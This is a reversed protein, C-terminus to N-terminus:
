KQMKEQLLIQLDKFLHKFNQRNPEPIIQDCQENAVTLVAQLTAGANKEIILNQPNMTEWLKNGIEMLLAPTIDKAQPFITKLVKDETTLTANQFQSKILLSIFIGEFKRITPEVANHDSCTETQTVIMSTIAVNVEKLGSKNGKLYERYNKILPWVETVIQQPSVKEKTYKNIDSILQTEAPTLETPQKGTYFCAFSAALGIGGISGRILRSSPIGFYASIALFTLSAAGVVLGGHVKKQVPINHWANQVAKLNEM